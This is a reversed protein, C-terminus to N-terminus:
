SPNLKKGSPVTCVPKFARWLKENRVKEADPDVLTDFPVLNNNSDFNLTIHQKKTVILFDEFIQCKKCIKTQIKSMKFFEEINASFCRM